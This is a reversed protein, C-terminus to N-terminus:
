EALRRRWLEGADRGEPTALFHELPVHVFAARAQALIENGDVIEGSVYIRRGREDDVRSIGLFETNIAIPRRFHVFLRGTVCPFRYWSALLGCVEDLAASVIGGHVFGPGGQHREDFQLYAEYERAGAETPQPLHLGAPNDGCGWCAPDHHPPIQLGSAGESM